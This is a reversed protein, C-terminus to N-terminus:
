PKPSPKDPAPAPAPTPAPPMVATDLALLAGELSTKEIKGAGAEGDRLAFATEGVQGFRVREFKGDDYSAGIVLAPKEVGTKTKADAFSQAKLEALRNLLDDMSAAKVEHSEGGQRTVKWVDPDSPKSAKAKEFDYVKPGGPADLVAHLRDVSFPRFEFFEKRRYDDFPKKTDGQLTSDITFIAPRSQDRAYTKDGDTKGILLTSKASGAGVTITMAPTDLGYTALGKGDVDVLTSMNSTSLRTLLGEVTSYDSRAAGPKVVKWESGSRTLDLSEPPTGRRMLSLTDAKDRDFKLIKKDRLDFSKKAFSTEQFAPVLFVKKEGGKMAYMDGQMATKDGLVLTGSVNGEAKFEVTVAPQELGYEGLKAANEDITRSTELNSLAQAMAMAEAPDADTASPETMTWGSATKKLLSTEGQFRVRLENIKETDVAFVKTKTAEGEPGPAPKKSDVFYIYGGLGALVVVLLLTSTLGRM